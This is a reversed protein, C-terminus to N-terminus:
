AKPFVKALGKQIFFGNLNKFKKKIKGFENTPGKNVEHPWTHCVFNNFFSFM